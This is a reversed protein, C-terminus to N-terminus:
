GGPFARASRFGGRRPRAAFAPEIADVEVADLAGAALETPEAVGAVGRGAARGEEAMLFLAYQGVGALAASAAFLTLLNVIGARAAGNVRAKASLEFSTRQKRYAPADKCELLNR